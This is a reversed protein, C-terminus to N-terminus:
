MKTMAASRYGFRLLYWSEGLKFKYWDDGLKVVESTGEPFEMKVGGTRFTKFSVVAKPQSDMIPVNASKKEHYSILGSGLVYLIIGAVGFAASLYLKKVIDDTKM